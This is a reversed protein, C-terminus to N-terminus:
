AKEIGFHTHLIERLHEDNEIPTETRKGNKNVNFIDNVISKSGEPTRLNVLRTQVFMSDDQAYCYFNPAIFDVEEVPVAAFEMTTEWTGNGDSNSNGNGNEARDGDRIKDSNGNEDGDGNGHALHSLQWRDDRKDLRFTQGAATKTYADEFKLAFGPQIGGFGVDCVYREGEIEAITLRHLSPIRRDKGVLVRALVPFVRYGSAALARAFLANLEFCYGGRGRQVIKDFLRETSLEIHLHEDFVDLNEFPVSYQHALILADLSALDCASPPPLGIRDFYQALRPIPAYLEPYM